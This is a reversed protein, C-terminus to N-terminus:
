HNFEMETGVKNYNCAKSNSRGSLETYLVSNVGEAVLKREVAFQYRTDALDVKNLIMLHPKASTFAQKFNMNRGTFPIRADHIEIICDVNKLNKQMDRM